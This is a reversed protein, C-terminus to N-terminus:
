GRAQLRESGKQDPDLDGNGDKGFIRKGRKRATKRM